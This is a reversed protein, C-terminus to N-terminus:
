NGNNTFYLHKDGIALFGQDVVKKVTITRTKDDFDANVLEPKGDALGYVVPVERAEKGIQIYTFVGDQWLRKVHFPKEDKVPAYTFRPGTREPTEPGAAAPKAEMRAKEAAELAAKTAILESQLADFQEANYYKRRGTARDTEATVYVKLDPVPADGERLLFSYTMGSTTMLNV